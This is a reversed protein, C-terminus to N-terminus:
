KEHSGSIEDMRLRAVDDGDIDILVVSSVSMCFHGASERQGPISEGGTYHEQKCMGLFKHAEAGHM